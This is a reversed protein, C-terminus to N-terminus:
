TSSNPKTMSHLNMLQSAEVTSISLVSAIEEKSLGQSILKKFITYKEPPPQHIRAQNLLRPVQFETTLSAKDLSQRFTPTSAVRNDTALAQNLKRELRKIQKKDRSPSATNKKKQLLAIVILSLCFGLLTSCIVLAISNNM